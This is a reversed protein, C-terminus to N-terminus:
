KYVYDDDFSSSTGNVYVTWMYTHDDDSNTIVGQSPLTNHTPFTHQVAYSGNHNVLKYPISGYNDDSTQYGVITGDKSWNWENDDISWSYWFYNQSKGILPDVEISKTGTSTQLIDSIEFDAM